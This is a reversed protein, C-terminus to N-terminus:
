ENKYAIKAHSYRSQSEILEGNFDILSSYSTIKFVRANQGSNSEAWTYFSAFRGVM